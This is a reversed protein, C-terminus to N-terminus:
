QKGKFAIGPRDMARIANGNSAVSESWGTLCDLRTAGHRRRRSFVTM